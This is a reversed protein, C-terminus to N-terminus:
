IFKKLKQYLEHTPLGVVNNYSGTIEKIGILGVWEQIGYSGAKDFPKYKEIYFNIEDNSLYVFSVNTTSSFVIQKASSTICVGTIVRHSNGSLKRLIQIADKKNKPKHIVECNQVVITDATILLYNNELIEKSIIDAKQKALFNAIKSVEINSPYEEEEKSTMIRFKIGLETLLKKRRESSSGLIINYKSLEQNLM